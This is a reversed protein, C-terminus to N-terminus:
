SEFRLFYQKPKLEKKVIDSWKLDIQSVKKLEQNQEFLPDIVRSKCFISVHYNNLDNIIKTKNNMRDFLIKLEKDNKLFKKIKKIVLEDTTYLDDESIYKKKLSYKLCDGVTRFMIASSLGAYYNSNLKFFLEAYKKASKFNKFVWKNNKIKLNNLFYEKNKDKIEKFIIATRLSYDIRDACLDPLKKEKLPFNKDNLIFELNFGHKKIIEPINTKSLYENFVNDQHSHEKESGSDLVYDICHSFAGHSIDHILGAIQEELSANYKYLLLYVGISHAFRSHEYEGVDANPNAWFPRFGGQDINKLRQLSASNILELIVPENIEFKGYVRDKIKKRIM